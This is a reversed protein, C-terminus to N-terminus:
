ESKTLLLAQVIKKIESPTEEFGYKGANEKSSNFGLSYGNYEFYYSDIKRRSPKDKSLMDLLSKLHTRTLWFRQPPIPNCDYTLQLILRAM